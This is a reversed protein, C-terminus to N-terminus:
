ARARNKLYRLWIELSFPAFVDRFWISKNGNCYENFLALYAARDVLGSQYVEASASSMLELVYPRLTNKLWEDQPNVFGKKDKRWAIKKPLWKEFSKRLPYKTWGDAMKLGAPMKLGLEVLRYDLFPTRVERAWAMSMRDEYHCLYPVSLHAIDQWQRDALTDIRGLEIQLHARRAQEGLINTNSRGLYRKAESFKFGAVITGRRASNLALGAADLFNGRQFLRKIELAPYKRYGCFVEDAGQGTLIVTVGAMKAAEMLKFFLVNSFSAIPGDNHSVCTELLGFLSEGSGANLTFQSVGLALHREMEHVFESEDDPSGPNTASFLKVEQGEGQHSRAAIAAIISSDLGGSLAIGVPVDAHLRLKVADEVLSGLEELIEDPAGQSTPNSEFDPAWFRRVNVLGDSPKAVDIAATSAPPFSSIGEIWSRDDIDMLSQSLYRAAVTLDPKLSLKEHLLLSHMESAFILGDDVSSYYLPKKGFRDRSIYIKGDIRNYVLLAWMGNFARSAAEVGIKEILEIAVETDTATRLPGLQYEAALQKYNYIEGNFIIRSAGSASDMPQIGRASLDLISLRQHAMGLHMDGVQECVVGDGDPGRHRQRFLARRVFQEVPLSGIAFVLGCM